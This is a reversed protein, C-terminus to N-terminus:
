EYTLIRFVKFNGPDQCDTIYVEDGSLLPQVNGPKVNERHDLLCTKVHEFNFGCMIDVYKLHSCLPLWLYFM